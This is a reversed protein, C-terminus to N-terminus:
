KWGVAAGWADDIFLKSHIIFGGPYPLFTAMEGLAYITPCLTFGVFSYAILLPIPGAIALGAGSAIFLGTGISSGLAILQSHYAKLTKDLTLTLEANPDNSGPHRDFSHVVSDAFEKLTRRPIVVANNTGPPVMEFSGSGREEDGFM